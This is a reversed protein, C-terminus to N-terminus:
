RCDACNNIWCFLDLLLSVFLKDQVVHCLPLAEFANQFFLYTNDDEPYVSRIDTEFGYLKNIHFSEHNGRAMFFTDPFLCKLAFLTLICPISAPGRDVFDGNFLYYHSTSPFGYLEFINVLDLFQGHIDGCLTM